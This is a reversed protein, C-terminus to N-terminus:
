LADAIIRLRNLYPCAITIEKESPCSKAIELEPEKPPITIFLIYIFSNVPM